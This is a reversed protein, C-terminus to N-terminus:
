SEESGTEQRDQLCPGSSVVVLSYPCWRELRLPPLISYLTSTQLLSPKRLSVSIMALYLLDWPRLSVSSSSYTDSALDVNTSLPMDLSCFLRGPIAETADVVHNRHHQAAAKASRQVILHFVLDWYSGSYSLAEIKLRFALEKLKYSKQEQGKATAIIWRVALDTPVL